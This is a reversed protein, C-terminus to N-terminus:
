HIILKAVLTALTEQGLTELIKGTNETKNPDESNLNAEIEEALGKPWKGGSKYYEGCVKTSITFGPPVPVGLNTMEALNAGKGGLHEKLTANGQAKGNGFFYVLRQAM